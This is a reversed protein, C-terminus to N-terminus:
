YTGGNVEHIIVDGAGDVTFYDTNFKAVGLNSSSAIEATVTLTGAGDNYTLDIAEGALLLNNMRDDVREDFGIGDIKFDNGTLLNVNRNFDWAATASNYKISAGATDVQIGAGTAAASDASGQAVIVLKDTISLDTSNIITQTGDVQLDGRIIVKGTVEMNNGPDIWMYGNASDTTSIINGNVRVNDVDLQTLGALDTVTAGPNLNTSGLTSAAVTIAGNSNGFDTADFRAVGLNTDTAVEAGVTVIGGSATIDIGEMGKFALTGSGLAVSGSSASDGTLNLTTSIANTGASTLRGQDDVTFVPIATATGYSGATVATNDLAISVQNNTVSSTLGTGGSFLLTDTALIVEDSDTGDAIRISAASNYSDVYGKTAADASDVPTAVDEIKNFNLVVSGTGNPELFIDGNTDTATITNGDITLNDVLLENIKKNGDVLLASNATLTGKAHDLQDTFFKGGVIEHNAADGNTETGHGFYLRDGGNSGNDALSSYALEGAALTTPNGSTASRKIRIISAM